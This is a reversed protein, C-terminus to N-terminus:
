ASTHARETEAWRALASLGEKLGTEPRWGLTARAKSIDALAHRIDGPRFEGTIDYATRPAGLTELLIEAAERITGPYGSGINVPGAPPADVAGALALAEVVDDVYVFDRVIEGDEFIRLRRGSLIQDAFISLVGTYPNNLSQGPGYVNQFRLIVSEFDGAAACQEILQEQMLKTSAYVSSPAPPLDERSAAPQLAAGDPGLPAYRGAALDALRRPPGSVTEGSGTRYAGEGYVARSGALIVRRKRRAPKRLAEILAATGSVNADCYRRPEDYSQGTGTEAALHYVIDPDCAAVAASLSAADAIDGRLFAANAPLPPPSAGHGHVQPHLNDYILIRDVSASIRAALRSGIFGAGGTILACTSM